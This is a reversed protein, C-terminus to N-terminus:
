LAGGEARALRERKMAYNQLIEQALLLRDREMHELDRHQGVRDEGQALDLIAGILAAAQTANVSDRRANWQPSFRRPKITKM